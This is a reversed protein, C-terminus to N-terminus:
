PFVIDVLVAVGASVLTSIIGAEVGDNVESLESHLAWYMALADAVAVIPNVRETQEIEWYYSSYRYVAFTSLIRFKEVETLIQSNMTYEEAVKLLEIKENLNNSAFVSEVTTNVISYENESIKDDKLLEDLLDTKYNGLSDFTKIKGDEIISLVEQCNYNVEVEFEREMESLSNCFTSDTYNQAMLHALAINHDVGVNDFPNEENEVIVNLKSLSNNNKINNFITNLDQVISNSKEDKGIVNNDDNEKTCSYILVGLAVAFVFYILKKM